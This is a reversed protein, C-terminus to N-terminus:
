RITASGVRRAKVKVNNIETIQGRLRVSLYLGANPPFTVTYKSPVRSNSFVVSDSVQITDGDDYVDAILYEGNNGTGMFEVSQIQWIDSGDGIFNGQYAMPYYIIVPSIYDAENSIEVWLGASDGNATDKYTEYFYYDDLSKETQSTDYRFSGAPICLNPSIGARTIKSWTESIINFAWECSSDKLVPVFIINDRLKYTNVSGLSAFTSDIDDQIPRSIWKNGASSLMYIKKDPRMYFIKDDHRITASRSYAGYDSTIRRIEIDYEPDYGFVDYISNNKFAILHEDGSIEIKEIAVLVDHESEDMSLYQIAGWYNIDEYGSYYLRQPFYEDGIGWWRQNCYEVDSFYVNLPSVIPPRIVISGDEVVMNDDTYEMNTPLTMDSYQIENILSDDAQFGLYFKSGDLTTRNIGVPLQLVGFWVESDHVGAVITSRYIRVHTALAQEESLYGLTFARPFTDATVEDCIYTVLPPSLASELDLIPDYWSWRISYLTDANPVNGNANNAYNEVFYPQGPLPIAADISKTGLNEASVQGSDIFSCQYNHSKFFVGITTWSSEIDKDSLYRRYVFIKTILDWGYPDEDGDKTPRNLFGTIVVKQNKPFVIASHYSSDSRLAEGVSTYNTFAYCYEVSQNLGGGGSLSEDLLYVRPQGPREMGLVTTRQQYATTDYMSDTEENDAVLNYFFSVPHNQNAILCVGLTNLFDTPKNPSVFVSQYNYLGAGGIDKPLTDSYETTFSDSSVIRAIASDTLFAYNTSDGWSWEYGSAGANDRERYLFLSDFNTKTYPFLSILHKRGYIPEVYGYAAPYSIKNIRISGDRRRAIGPNTTINTNELYLADTEAMIEVDVQTNMGTAGPSPTDFVFLVKAWMVTAFAFMLFVIINIGRKM